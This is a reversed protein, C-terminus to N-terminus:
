PAGYDYWAGDWPAARHCRQFCMDYHEESGDRGEKDTFLWEDQLPLGDAAPDGAAFRRMVSLYEPDGVCDGDGYSEKVIVTGPQYRGAHTYAR